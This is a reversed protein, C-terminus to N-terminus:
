QLSTTLKPVALSKCNSNGCKDKDSYNKNNTIGVFRGCSACHREYLSDQPSEKVISYTLKCRCIVHAPPADIGGFFQDKIGVTVGAYDICTPCAGPQINWTKYTGATQIANLEDNLQLMARNGAIESARWSENQAFRQVRYAQSAKFASLQSKIESATLGAAIGAAILTAINASTDDNFSKVVSKEYAEDSTTMATTFKSTNSIELGASMAMAIGDNYTKSGRMLMLLLLIALIEEALDDDEEDTSAEAVDSVSVIARQM